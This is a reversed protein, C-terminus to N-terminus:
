MCPLFTLLRVVLHLSEAVREVIIGLCRPETDHISTAYGYYQLCNVMAFNDTIIKCSM